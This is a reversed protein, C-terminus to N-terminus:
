ALGQVVLQLWLVSCGTLSVAMCVCVCSCVCSSYCCVSDCKKTQNYVRIYVFYELCNVFESSCLLSFAVETQLLSNNCAPCRHAAYKDFHCCADPICSSWCLWKSVLPKCLWPDNDRVAYCLVVSRQVAGHQVAVGETGANSQSSQLIFHTPPQNSIKGSHTRLKLMLM